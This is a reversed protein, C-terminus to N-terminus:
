RYPECSIKTFIQPIIFGYVGVIDRVFNDLTAGFVARMGEIRYFLNLEFYVSTMEPYNQMRLLLHQVAIEFRIGHIAITM